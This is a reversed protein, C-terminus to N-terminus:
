RESSHSTVAVPHGVTRSSQRQRMGVWPVSTNLDASPPIQLEVDRQGVACVCTSYARSQNVGASRRSVTAAAAANYRATSGKCIIRKM